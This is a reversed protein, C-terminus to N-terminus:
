TGIRLSLILLMHTTPASLSYFFCEQPCKRNAMMAVCGSSGVAKMAAGYDPKRRQDAIYETYVIHDHRDIIFVAMQLLRCGELWVGYDHGFQESRSASLAQHIM